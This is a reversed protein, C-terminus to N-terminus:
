GFNLALLKVTQGFIPLILSCSPFLWTSSLSLGYKFEWDVTFGAAKTSTKSSM